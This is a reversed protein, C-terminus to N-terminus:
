FAPLVVATASSHSFDTEWYACVVTVILDKHFHILYM